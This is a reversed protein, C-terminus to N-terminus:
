YCRLTVMSNGVAGEPTAKLAGVRWRAGDQCPAKASKAVQRPVVINIPEVVVHTEKVGRPTEQRKPAVVEDWQTHALILKKQPERPGNVAGIIVMPVFSAVAVATLVMLKM